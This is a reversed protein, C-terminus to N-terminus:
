PDSSFQTYVVVFPDRKLIVSADTESRVSRDSIFCM